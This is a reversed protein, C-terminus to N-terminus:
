RVAASPRRRNTTGLRFVPYGRSRLSELYRTTGYEARVSGYDDWLLVGGDRVMAM